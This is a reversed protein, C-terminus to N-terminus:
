RTRVVPILSNTEQRRAPRSRTAMEQNLTSVFEEIQRQM